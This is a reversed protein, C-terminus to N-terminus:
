RDGQEALHRAKLTALGRRADEAARTGPHREVLRRLEVMARGPDNLVGEYLDVLRSAAYVDDARSIGPIRQAERFLAEARRPDCGERAHLDAARLRASVLLPDAAVKTEFSALAGAVDRQMLLADERSYDAHSPTSAGSPLVASAVGRAAGTAVAQVGLLGLVFGALAAALFVLAAGADGFWSPLPVFTAAYAVFFATAFGAPLARLLESSTLGLREQIWRRVPERRPVDRRMM